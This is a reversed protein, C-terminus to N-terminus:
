DPANIFTVGCQSCRVAVVSTTCLVYEMPVDPLVISLSALIHGVVSDLDRGDDETTTVVLGKGEVVGITLQVYWVHTLLYICDVTTCLTGSALLQTLALPVSPKSLVTSKLFIVSHPFYYVLAFVLLSLQLPPLLSSVVPLLPHASSLLQCCIPTPPDYLVYQYSLLSCLYASQFSSLTLTCFLKDNSDHKFKVRQNWETDRFEAFNDKMREAYIWYDM